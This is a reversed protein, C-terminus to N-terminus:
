PGANERSASKERKECGDSNKQENKEKKRNSSWVTDLKDLYNFPSILRVVRYSVIYNKSVINKLSFYLINQKEFFFKLENYSTQFM